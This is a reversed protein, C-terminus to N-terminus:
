EEKFFCLMHVLLYKNALKGILSKDSPLAFKVIDLLSRWLWIAALNM